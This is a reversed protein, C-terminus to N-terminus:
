DGSDPDACRVRVDRWGECVLLIQLRRMCGMSVHSLPLPCMMDTGEQCSARRQLPVCNSGCQKVGVSADIECDATHAARKPADSNHRRMESEEQHASAQHSSAEAGAAGSNGREKRPRPLRNIICNARARTGFSDRAARVILYESAAPRGTEEAALQSHLLAEPLAQILSAFAFRVSLCANWLVLLARPLIQTPLHPNRVSSLVRSPLLSCRVRTDASRDHPAAGLQNSIDCTLTSSASEKLGPELRAGSKKLLKHEERSFSVLEMTSSLVHSKVASDLPSDCAFSPSHNVSIITKVCLQGIDDWLADVDHGKSRLTNMLSSITRKHSEGDELDMPQIFDPNDKNIAYNTLHMHSNHLNSATTPVYKETCIRVLGERFLFIRVPQISTLLVYLRLDYKYGDLLHPRHMYRQVINPENPNIDDLNRTLMIGTGQCGKSPKVIFTKAGRRSEGFEKKLDTYDAPLLFTKPFFKYDKGVHKLMKNLNRATGAKRVLELMGPFHNIKQTRALRMVRELSVSVDSWCVHWAHSEEFEEAELVTWGLSATASLVSAYKSLLLAKLKKVRRLSAERKDKKPSACLEAEGCAEQESERAEGAEEEAEEYDSAEGAM